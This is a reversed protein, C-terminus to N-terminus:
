SNSSPEYNNDKGELNNFITKNFDEDALIRHAPTELDDFQGNRTAWLFAVIFGIVIMLTVPIMLFFVNM